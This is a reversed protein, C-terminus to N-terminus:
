CVAPVGCDVLEQLPALGVPQISAVHHYIEHISGSAFDVRTWFCEGPLEFQLNEARNACAFKVTSCAIERVDHFTTYSASEDESATKGEYWRDLLIQLVTTDTIYTVLSKRIMRRLADQYHFDLPPSVAIRLADQQDDLGVPLFRLSRAVKGPILRIADSPSDSERLKIMPLGYQKSLALTVQQESVFGLRLLWEGIRGEGTELQSQRARDIQDRTVGSSQLLITGLKPRRVARQRSQSLAQWRESLVEEIHLQLCTESCFTRNEFRPPRRRSLFLSFDSRIRSCGKRQCSSRPM